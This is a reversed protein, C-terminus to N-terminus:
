FEKGHPTKRLRNAILKMLNIAISVLVIILAIELLIILGINLNLREFYDGIFSLLQYIGLMLAIFIAGLVILSKKSFDKAHEFNYIILFVFLFAMAIEHTLSDSASFGQVILSVILGIIGIIKNM